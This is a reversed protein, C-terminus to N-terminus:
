SDSKTVNKREGWFTVFDALSQLVTSAGEYPWEARLFELRKLKISGLAIELFNQAALLL